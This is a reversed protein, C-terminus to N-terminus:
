CVTVTVRAVTEVNKVGLEGVIRANRGYTPLRTGEEQDKLILTAQPWDRKFTGTPPAIGVRPTFAVTEEGAYPVTSYTPPLSPGSADPSVLVCDSYTPLIVVTM